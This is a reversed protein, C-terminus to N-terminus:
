TVFCFFHCTGTYRRPLGCARELGELVGGDLALLLLIDLGFLATVAYANTWAEWEFGRTKGQASMGEWHRLSNSNEERSKVRFRGM